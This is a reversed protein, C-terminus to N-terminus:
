ALMMREWLGDAVNLLTVSDAHESTQYHGTEDEWQAAELTLGVVSGVAEDVVLHDPFAAFRWHEGKCHTMIARFAERGTEIPTRACLVQDGEIWVMARRSAREGYYFEVRSCRGALKVLHFVDPITFDHLSGQLSPRCTSM